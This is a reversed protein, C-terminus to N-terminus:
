LLAKSAGDCDGLSNRLKDVERKEKDKLKLERRQEELNHPFKNLM